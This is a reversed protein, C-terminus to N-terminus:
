GASECLTRFPKRIKEVDGDFNPNVVEFGPHPLLFAGVDDFCDEIHERVDGQLALVGVKM